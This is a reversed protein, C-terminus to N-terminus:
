RINQKPEQSQKQSGTTKTARFLDWTTSSALLGRSNSSLLRLVFTTALRPGDLQLSSMIWFIIRTPPSVKPGVNETITQPIIPIYMYM